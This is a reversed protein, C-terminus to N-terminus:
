AYYGYGKLVNEYVRLTRRAIVDISYEEEAVKRGLKGMKMRIEKDNILTILAKALDESNAPEILLGNEGHSIVESIGGVRTAIVPKGCAMAEILSRGFPEHWVSPVAVIDCQQYYKNTDKHPVFGEFITHESVGLKRALEEMKPRITGDGVFLFSCNNNYKMVRPIAGILYDVGKGIDFRGIYLIKIMNDSKKNGSNVITKFEELNVANYVVHVDETKLKLNNLIVGKLFNSNTIYADFANLSRMLMNCSVYRLAAYPVLGFIKTLHQVESHKYICRTAKSLSCKTKVKDSLCWGYLAPCIHRYDRISLVTPPFIKMQQKARMVAYGSIWNQAHVIDFDEIKLMDELKKGLNISSLIGTHFYDHLPGKRNKYVVSRVTSFAEFNLNVKKPYRTLVSVDHGLKSLGIGLYYASIEAGGVIYPPFYDSILLINM